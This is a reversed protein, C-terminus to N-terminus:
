ARWKEIKNPFVELKYEVEEQFEIILENSVRSRIKDYYEILKETPMDAFNRTDIEAEIKQVLGHFVKIRQEKSILYKECLEDLHLAKINSIEVQYEKSWKILTPKSM